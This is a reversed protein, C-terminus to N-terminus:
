NKKFLLYLFSRLAIKLTVPDDETEEEVPGNSEAQRKKEKKLENLKAEEQQFRLDNLDVILLKRKDQENRFKEHEFALENKLKEVQIELMHRDNKLEMVLDQLSKKEEKLNKIEFKEEERYQMLKHDCQDALTVLMQKLPELERIKERQSALM